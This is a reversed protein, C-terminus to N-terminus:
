HFFFAAFLAVFIKYKRPYNKWYLFVFVVSFFAVHLFSFSGRTLTLLSTSLCFFVLSYSRRTAALYFSYLLLSYGLATVCPYFPYVSYLQTSPSLFFITCVIFSFRNEKSIHKVLTFIIISVISTCVLNFVIFVEYINKSFFSFAVILANLMLPQSHQYLLSKLPDSLLLPIDLFQWHIEIMKELTNLELFRILLYKSLVLLIVVCILRFFDKM